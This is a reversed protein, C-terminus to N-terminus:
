FGRLTPSVRGNRVLSPMLLAGPFTAMLTNGSGYDGRWRASARQEEREGPVKQWFQAVQRLLHPRSVWSRVRYELLLCLASSQSRAALLTTHPDPSPTADFNRERLLANVRETLGRRRTEKM